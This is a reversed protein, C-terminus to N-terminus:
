FAPSDQFTGYLFDCFYASTNAGNSHDTRYRSSTRWIMQMPNSPLTILSYLSGNQILYALNSHGPNNTTLVGSSSALNSHLPSTGGPERQLNVPSKETLRSSPVREASTGSLALKLRPVYHRHKYIAYLALGSFACVLSVAWRDFNGIVSAM